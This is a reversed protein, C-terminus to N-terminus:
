LIESLLLVKRELIVNVLNTLTTFFSLESHGNSKATLDKLVQPSIGDVDESSVNPFPM